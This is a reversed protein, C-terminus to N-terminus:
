EEGSEGDEEEESVEEGREKAERRLREARARKKELLKALRKAANFVGNTGAGCAACSPDKRYRKLACGECFYHGCRTVVPSNSYPGRCIICAFPINELMAEEAADADEDEDSPKKNMRKDASSVVTGQLNKKGKTVNEWEKDLQWGHAYDERAHLFKCNDGFGCFGTQKYDKCVDPAMDTITITRINSPAKIPGVKRNPANPNKQIYSAQNALGKYTGDPEREPGQPAEDEGSQKKTNKINRTRGLLSKTSLDEKDEDFWSSGKTADQKTADLRLAADRDASYITNSRIQEEKTIEGNTSSGANDRSSAMVAATHNKKRRKIRQGTVEDESSEFDSSDDDSDKAVPPPSAPRKRLNAKGKAGRKKFIAVPAIPATSTATTAEPATPAAPSQETDAM